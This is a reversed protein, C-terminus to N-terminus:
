DPRAPSLANRAAAGTRSYPAPGPAIFRRELGQQFDLRMEAQRARREDLLVPMDDLGQRRDNRGLGRREPQHEAAACGQATRM